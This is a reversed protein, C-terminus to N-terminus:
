IILQNFFECLLLYLSLSFSINLFTLLCLCFVLSCALSLYINATCCWWQLDNDSSLYRCHLTMMSCQRQYLSSYLSILLAADDNFMTTPLSINTICRRQVDDDTSLHISLHWCHLTTIMTTLEHSLVRLTKSQRPVCFPIFHPIYSDRSKLCM